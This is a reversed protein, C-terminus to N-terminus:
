KQASHIIVVAAALIIVAIVRILISSQRQYWDLVPRLRKPGLMFVVLGSVLFLIGFAAIVLKGWKGRCDGAGLLFVVALVLRILGALYIRQDKKFFEVIRKSVDPRLLYLMGVFVFVIGLSQIIATMIQGKGSEKQSKDYSTLGDSVTINSEQTKLWM